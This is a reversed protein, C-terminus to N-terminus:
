SGLFSYGSYHSYIVDLWDAVPRRQNILLSININNDICYTKVAALSVSDILSSDIGAGYYKNTILINIMDAPSMDYRYNAIHNGEDGASLEFTFMPIQPSNGVDLDEVYMCAVQKLKNYTLGTLTSLQTNGNGPFLTFNSTVSNSSSIIVSVLSGDGYVSEEDSKDFTFGYGSKASGIIKKGKWIKLFTAPGYCISILFSRKYRTEETEGEAGGFNKGGEVKHKIVYPTAPAAWILNGALRVTGLVIPIPGGVQCAQAPYSGIKTNIITGSDQPFLYSGLMSGGLYGIAAGIQGFLAGGVASGGVGLVMPMVVAM